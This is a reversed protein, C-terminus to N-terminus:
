DVFQVVLDHGSGSLQSLWGPVGLLMKYINIILTFTVKSNCNIHYHLIGASIQAARIAM